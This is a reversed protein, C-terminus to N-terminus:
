FWKNFSIGYGFDDFGHLAALHVKFNRGLSFHAGLNLDNSDYEAMLMVRKAVAASIGGFIGDLQGGGVGFHLRPSVVEGYRWRYERGLVKSVTVYATTDVEGTFDIVGVAVAPHAETERHFVYKGNLFTESSFYEPKRRTFGIEFHEDLAINAAYMNVDGRDEADFRFLGVNFGSKGLADATPILVLGTPGLFSPAALAPGSTLGM